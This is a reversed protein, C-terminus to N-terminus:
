RRSHHRLFRSTRRHSRARARAQRPKPRTIGESLRDPYVLDLVEFGQEAVRHIISVPRLLRAPTTSSISSPPWRCGGLIGSIWVIFSPASANVRSIVGIAFLLTFIFLGVTFRIVNDRLLTPRSSGPRSSGAQSRYPLSCSGFTFVILSLALSIVAQMAAVTGETGLPWRLVARGSKSHLRLVCYYKSFFSRSSLCSGCHPDIRYSRVAYLQNWSM